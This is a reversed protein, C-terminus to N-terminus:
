TYQLYTTIDPVSLSLTYTVIFIHIYSTLAYHRDIINKKVLGRVLNGITFKM